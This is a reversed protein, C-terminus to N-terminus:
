GFSLSLLGAMKAPSKIQWERGFHISRCNTIKDSGWSWATCLFVMFLNRGDLNILLYAISNLTPMERLFVPSLRM